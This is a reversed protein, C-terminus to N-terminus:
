APSFLTNCELSLLTEKISLGGGFGVLSGSSGIVRHCPVVISIPNKGNAAGVARSAQPNGIAKAIQGYSTTQGYPISRLQQWVRQQFDTGEPKLKITFTKLEGAFYANLQDIADRFPSEDYEWNPNVTTPQTGDQFSILKLAGDDAALLLKGVPSNIVCYQMVTSRPPLSRSLNHQTNHCPAPNPAIDLAM